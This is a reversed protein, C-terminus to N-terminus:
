QIIIILALSILGFKDTVSFMSHFFVFSLSIEIIFRAHILERPQSFLNSFTSVGECKHSYFIPYQSLAQPFYPSQSKPNRYFSIGLPATPILVHLVPSSQSEAAHEQAAAKERSQAKSRTTTVVSTSTDKNTHHGM